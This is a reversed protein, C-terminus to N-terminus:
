TQKGHSNAAAVAASVMATLAELAACAQDIMAQTGELQQYAALTVEQAPKLKFAAMQDHHAFRARDLIELIPEIGVTKAALAKYAPAVEKVAAALAAAKATLDEPTFLKDM